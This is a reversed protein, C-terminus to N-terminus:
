TSFLKDSLIQWSVYIQGDHAFMRLRIVANAVDVYNKMPRHFSGKPKMRNNDLYEWSLSKNIGM